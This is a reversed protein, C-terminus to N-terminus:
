TSSTRPPMGGAEAASTTASFSAYVDRKPANDAKKQSAVHLAGATTSGCTNQLQIPKGRTSAMRLPGHAPRATTATAYAPQTAANKADAAAHLLNRTLVAGGLEQSYTTGPESFSTASTKVGGYLHCDLVIDGTVLVVSKSM